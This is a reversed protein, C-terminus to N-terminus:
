GVGRSYQVIKSVYVMANFIIHIIICIYINSLTIFIISSVISFVLKIIAGQKQTSIHAIVFVISNLVVFIICKAYMDFNFIQAVYKFLYHKFIIEELVPIIGILLIGTIINSDLKIYLSKIHISKEICYILVPSILIIM